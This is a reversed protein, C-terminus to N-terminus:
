VPGLYHHAMYWTIALHFLFIIIGYFFVVTESSYALPAHRIVSKLQLLFNEIFFFLIAGVIGFNVLSQFESRLVSESIEQRDRKIRLRQFYLWNLLVYIVLLVGLWAVVGWELGKRSYADPSAFLIGAAILFYFFHTYIMPVREGRPFITANNKLGTM